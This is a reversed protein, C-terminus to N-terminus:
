LAGAPYSQVVAAIILGNEMTKQHKTACIILQHITLIM